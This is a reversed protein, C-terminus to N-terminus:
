DNTENSTVKWLHKTFSVIVHNKPQLHLDARAIVTITVKPKCQPPTAGNKLADNRANVRDAQENYSRMIAGDRNIGAYVVEMTKRQSKLMDELNQLWVIQQTTSAWKM